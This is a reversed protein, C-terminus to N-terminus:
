FTQPLDGVQFFQEALNLDTFTVACLFNIDQGTLTKVHRELISLREDTVVWCDVTQM